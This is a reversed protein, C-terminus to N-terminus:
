GNPKGKATIQRILQRAPSLHKLFCDSIPMPKKSIYSAIIEACLPAYTLGHSGMATMLYLNPWYTGPKAIFRKADTSLRKFVQGFLDSQPLPGVLPFYDISRVRHGIRADRSDQPNFMDHAFLQNVLKINDGDVADDLGVEGGIGHQGNVSPLVYGRGSLPCRLTQSLRNDEVYSIRGPYPTLNIGTDSLFPEAGLAATIVVHTHRKGDVLWFGNDQKISEVRHNYKFEIQSQEVLTQCLKPISIMGSLPLYVGGQMLPVQSIESAQDKNVLRGLEPYTEFFAALQSLKASEQADKALQMMGRVDFIDLTQYLRLAFLFASLSFEDIAQTHARWKYFLISHNNGSAAMAVDTNAEYLCVSHHALALQHAVMCGALGAGIVAISADCGSKKTNNEIHWPTQFPKHFLPTQVESIAQYHGQLVERKFGIGPRKTLKFGALQLRRRLEGQVTYTALSTGEDSFLHMLQFLSLTWLSENKQPAFGDLYWADVKFPMMTSATELHRTPLMASLMDFADGILLDLTVGKFQLRHYGATLVPYQSLLQTSESKLEPWSSLITKLDNVKLPHKECAIYHLQNPSQTQAQWLQWTVLFNLGTGFGFELIIFPCKDNAKLQSFRQALDNGDLFVHRTENLGGSKSYYVDGYLASSPDGQSDYVVEAFRVEKMSHADSM